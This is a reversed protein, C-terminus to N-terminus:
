VHARGIQFRTMVVQMGAGIAFFLPPMILLALLPDVGRTGLEYTLYASSTAFAFHALNIQRLLGWSLTLGLGLLGYIAGTFLGGVISQFLLTISPLNM